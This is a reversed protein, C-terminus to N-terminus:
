SFLRKKPRKEEREDGFCVVSDIRGSIELKGSDSDFAIIKLSEGEISINSGHSTCGLILHTDSFEIVDSIGSLDARCRDYIFINGEGTVGTM